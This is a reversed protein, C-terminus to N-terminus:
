QQKTQINFQIPPFQEVKMSFKKEPHHTHFIVCIPTNKSPWVSCDALLFTCYPSPFDTRLLLLMLKHNALGSWSCSNNVKVGATFSGGSPPSIMQHGTTAGWNWRWPTLWSGAWWFVMGRSTWINVSMKYLHKELRVLGSRTLTWLTM